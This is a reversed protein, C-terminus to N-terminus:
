VRGRADGRLRGEADASSCFLGAAAYQTYTLSPAAPLTASPTPTRDDVLAAAAFWVIPRSHRMVMIASSSPATVWGTCSLRSRDGFARSLATM